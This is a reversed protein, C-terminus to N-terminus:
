HMGTSSLDKCPPATNLKIVLPYLPLFFLFPPEEKTCWDCCKKLINPVRSEAAQDSLQQLHSKVYYADSCQNRYCASPFNLACPMFSMRLSKTNKRHQTYMYGIEWMVSWRWCTSLTAIKQFDELRTKLTSEWSSHIDSTHALTLEETRSSSTSFVRSCTMSNLQKIFLSADYDYTEM